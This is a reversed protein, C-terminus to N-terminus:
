GIKKMLFLEEPEDPLTISGCDVYGNKRYFFQGQENKQTSVLVLKYGQAKMEEEWFVALETGKKQNRYKELIFLLNMFPLNDWFLNYRLWGAIQKEELIVLIHNSCISRILEKESIHHDLKKLTELDKLEAYRIM